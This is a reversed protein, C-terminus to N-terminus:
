WRGVMSISSPGISIATTAQPDRRKPAIAVLVIGGALAVGGAIMAVTSVTAATFSASRLDLGTADCRNKADCHGDAKSANNKTLAVVGFAGGVGLGALGLAGVVFGATRLPSGGPSAPADDNQSADGGPRARPAVALAPITVTLTAGERTVDITQEWRRDGRATAVITHKGMDIPIQLGWQMETVAHGDRTVTLGDARRAEASVDITLKPIRPGLAEARKKAFDARQVQGAARAKGAVELFHTQAASLKGIQEYCDALYYQTGLSPDIRQSEAFKPCAEAWSKSATLKRAADFLAQAVTKDVESVQARAAGSASGIAIAAAVAAWRAVRM